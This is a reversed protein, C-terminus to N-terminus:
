IFPRKDLYTSLDREQANDKLRRNYETETIRTIDVQPTRFPRFWEFEIPPRGM